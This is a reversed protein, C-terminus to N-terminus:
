WVGCFDATGLIRDVSVQDLWAPGRIEGWPWANVRAELAFVEVHELGAVNRVARVRDLYDDRDNRIVYWADRGQIGRGSRLRIPDPVRGAGARRAFGRPLSGRVWEAPTISAAVEIVARSAFPDAMLVGEMAAPNGAAPLSTVSRALWRLYGERDM